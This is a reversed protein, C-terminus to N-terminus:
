GETKKIETVEQSGPKWGSWIQEGKGELAKDRAEARSTAEIRYYDLHTSKIIVIYASM